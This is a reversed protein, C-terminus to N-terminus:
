AQMRAVLEAPLELRGELAVVGQSEMEGWRQQRTHVRGGATRVLALEPWPNEACEADEGAELAQAARREVDEAVALLPPEVALQDRLVFGADLLKEAGDVSVSM